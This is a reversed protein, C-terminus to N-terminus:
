SMEGRSLIAVMEYIVNEFANEHIFLKTNQNLNRKNKKVSKLDSWGETWIGTLKWFLRFIMDNFQM